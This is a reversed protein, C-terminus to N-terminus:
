RKIKVVSPTFERLTKSVFKEGDIFIHKFNTDFGYEEQLYNRVQRGAMYKDTAQTVLEVDIVDGEVMLRATCNFFELGDVYKDEALREIHKFAVGMTSVFAQRSEYLTNYSERCLQGFRQMAIKRAQHSINPAHNYRAHISEKLAKLFKTDRKWAAGTRTYEVEYGHHQYSESMRNLVDHSVVEFTAKPKGNLTVTVGSEVRSEHVNHSGGTEKKWTAKPPSDGPSSEKSHQGVQTIKQSDKDKSGVVNDGIKATRTGGARTTGGAMTQYSRKGPASDAGEENTTGGAKGHDMQNTYEDAFKAQPITFVKPNGDDEVRKVKTNVSKLKTSQNPTMSKTGVSKPSKQNEGNAGNGASQGHPMKNTYTDAFDAQPVTNDDGKKPAPDATFGGDQVIQTITDKRESRAVAATPNKIVQSGRNRHNLKAVSAKKAEDAEILKTKALTMSLRTV